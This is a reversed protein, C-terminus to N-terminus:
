QLVCTGTSMIVIDVPSMLDINKILIVRSEFKWAFYKLAFDKVKTTSKVWLISRKKRALGFKIHSELFPMVQKAGDNLDDDLLVSHPRLEIETEKSPSSYIENTM